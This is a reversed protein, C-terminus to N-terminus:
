LWFTRSFSAGDLCSMIHIAYKTARNPSGPLTSGLIDTPLLNTISIMDEYNPLELLISRM